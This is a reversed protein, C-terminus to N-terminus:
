DLPHFSRESSQGGRAREREGSARVFQFLGGRL